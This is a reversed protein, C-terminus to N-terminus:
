VGLLPPNLLFRSALNSLRATLQLTVQAHHSLTLKCLQCIIIGSLFVFFVYLVYIPVLGEEMGGSGRELNRL